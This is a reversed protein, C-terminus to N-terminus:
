GTYSSAIMGAANFEVVGDRWRVGREFRGPLLLWEALNNEALARYGLYSTTLRPNIEVVVPRQPAEDPVVLDVGVYGCMEPVSRCAALATTQIATHDIESLPVRGGLYRFRGDDSLRQEAPLLLEMERRSTSFLLAVSVAIGAVYRQWIFKGGTAGAAAERRCREFEEANSLLFTNQSGAGDRPKIVAPFSIRGKRRLVHLANDWGLMKAPITAVGADRLHAALRFKDTCLAVARSGPGLLRGGSNEVLRCRDFLIGDFEPAIVLTADCEAALRRFHRLEDAPSEVATACARSFPPRGLRADWTTEVRIGAIRSLDDVIACLMARGETALSGTITTEPWGGGCVYESVFVRLSTEEAQLEPWGM